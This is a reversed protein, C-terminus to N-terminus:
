NDSNLAPLPRGQVPPSFLTKQVLAWTLPQKRNWPLLSMLRALLCYNVTLRATLGIAPIWLIWGLPEYWATLFLAALVFRVQCSFSLFSKDEIGFHVVQAVCLVLAAYVGSIDIFIAYLVSIQTALLYWWAVTFM